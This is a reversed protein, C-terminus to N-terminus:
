FFHFGLVAAALLFRYIAYRMLTVTKMQGLFVHIAFVGALTAVVTTIYFYHSPFESVAYTSGPGRLNYWASIGMLPTTIYLIFKGAGERSFNRMASLTFAGTARGVEPIALAASGIGVLAADLANWDYISKNKKTYNDLFAMPVGSLALVGAFLLPNEAPLIPAQRFFFFAVIPAIVGVMVFFPMREDMARPKKRYVIVQILSSTHSLLDHRLVFILGLFLGLETAGTLHPNSVNWGLFYELLSRHAGSAVPFLESFVGIIATVIAQFLTM